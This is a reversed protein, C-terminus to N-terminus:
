RTAKRIQARLARRATPGLDDVVDLLVTLQDLSELARGAGAPDAAEFLELGIFGACIARSLGPVDLMDRLPHRRLLREVVAEVEAIWLQVTEASVAALAPDSQAGALVQALVRVNGADREEAHLARGTALLDRLSTVTTFRARYAAVRVTTASRCAEAILNTVTGFHYFVLAQNVGARTAIARASAGAIGHTKLTELAADRLRQPTDTV